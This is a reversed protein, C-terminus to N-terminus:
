NKGAVLKLNKEVSANNNKKASSGVGTSNIPSKISPLTLEKSPKAAAAAAKLLQPKPSPHSSKSHQRSRLPPTIIPTPSDSPFTVKKSSPAQPTKTDKTSKLVSPAGVSPEPLQVKPSSTRKPVPTYSRGKPNPLLSAEPIASQTPVPTQSYVSPVFVQSTPKVPEDAKKSGGRASGKKFDFKKPDIEQKPILLIKSQTMENPILLSNKPDVSNNKALSRTPSQGFADSAFSNENPVVQRISSKRLNNVKIIMNTTSALKKASGKPIMKMKMEEDIFDQISKVSKNNPNSVNVLQKSGSSYLL